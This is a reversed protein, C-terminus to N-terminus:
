RVARWVADLAELASLRHIERAGDSLEWTSGPDLGGDPLDQVAAWFNWFPVDFEVALVAMDQNVREDLERNDVKTALVPVAGHEIITEIIIVLYRYNRTEWHTGIHIFVISPRHVRLECDLPTEGPECLNEEDDNWEGWLLAGATTGKKVTPSYRDFSGSFNLVTEQLYDPLTAVASPENDYLGLFEEPQSLCDGLVSFAHPDNGNELGARYVDKLEESVTPLIPWYKWDTASVAPTGGNVSPLTETNTAKLSSTVALLLPTSTSTSAAQM